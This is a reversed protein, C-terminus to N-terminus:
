RETLKLEIRRNQARADPTDSPDVPRYEGFGTAALRDPPFGLNETLFRVVSLARAQSLEWNDAFEGTGSLPVNDTHGDVRIIWDISNPIQDSVDSLIEAVQAISSRGAPALTASASEFLVESSFVFRDGVIKIGERDGLVQRLTGFFESRYDALDEVEAGLREAEQRLREAEAAELEARRREEAAARALAQNLQSGLAEIRIQSEADQEAASDLLGQLGNLEARLTAVQQNLAEVQLQARESVAEEEELQRRAAALLTEQRERASMEEATVNEAALKAALAAALQERIDTVTVADGQLADREAQLRDRETQLVTLRDRLEENTAFNDSLTNEATELRLLADTLRGNLEDEVANAAALLTLTEEAQARQDELALSMATLEADANELRERLSQAIAIEALRAQEAATLAEQTETLRSDRNEIDSQLQATMAELAERQAAALRAAEAQADIEDRARALALQAAEQESILRNQAAELEEVNATLREGEALATDREALLSAVRDEFSAIAADREALTRAQDNIQGTLNAILTEQRSREDQLGAIDDELRATTQQAIGLAQSLATVESALQNLESEQGTITERQIAQVIMFITLVFMLVLLLATMADVFGPWISGTMRQGSRRSLAM